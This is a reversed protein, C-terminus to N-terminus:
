FVLIFFFDSFYIKLNFPRAGNSASATATVMAHRNRHHGLKAYLGEPNAATSAQYIDPYVDSVCYPGAAEDARVNAGTDSITGDRRQLQRQEM